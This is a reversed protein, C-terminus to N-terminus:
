SQGRPLDGISRADHVVAFSVSILRLVNGAAQVYAFRCFGILWRRFTLASKRIHAITNNGLSALLRWILGASEVMLWSM